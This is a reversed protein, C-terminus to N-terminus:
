GGGTEQDLAAHYPPPNVKDPPTFWDCKQGGHIDTQTIFWHLISEPNNCDRYNFEQHAAWIPCGMPLLDYLVCRCCFNEEFGMGETGNSFYGM